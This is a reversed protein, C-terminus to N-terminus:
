IEEEQLGEIPPQIGDLSDKDQQSSIPYTPAVVASGSVM